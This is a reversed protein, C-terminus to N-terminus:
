LNACPTCPIVSTFLFAMNREQWGSRLLFGFRIGAVGNFCQQLPRACVYGVSVGLGKGREVRIDFVMEGSSPDWWVACWNRRGM